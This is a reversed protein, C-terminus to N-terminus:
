RRALTTPRDRWPPSVRHGLWLIACDGAKEVLGSGSVITNGYFRAQADMFDTPSYAVKPTTGCYGGIFFGSDSGTVVAECSDEFQRCEAQAAARAEAESRAAIIWSRGKPGVAMAAYGWPADNQVQDPSGSPYMGRPESLAPNMSYQASVTNLGSGLLLAAGVMALRKM